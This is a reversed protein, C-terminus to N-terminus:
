ERRGNTALARGDTRSPVTQLLYDGYRALREALSVLRASVLGHVSNPPFSGDARRQGATIGTLLEIGQDVTEVAWVHFLGAAAAEVIEPKLMLHRANTRPIIVGQTGTLGRAKCVAFFGEIKTTVGGVAQIDGRQNVSGTVAIDQRIPTDALSSLLAYLESSSASDGDIEDYVQEFAIRASLALPNSKAYTGVLYGILTLVGKSHSPGSLKIERQVDVVGDVGMGTQVTIRTPRAFAHDELQLVSLGNIQGVVRSQTDIAITGQVMMRQVEDEVLRVRYERQVLATEVHGGGVEPAGAQRACSDAEVIVETIADFCSTLREQDEVLRSGHEVLRAVAERNFPLLCHEQVQQSIFAAYAQVSTASYDLMPSFEAKVKFLKRFDEDLRYLLSYTLADGILVVKVQLPIPEPKLSMTPLGGLQETLNEVRIQRDRLSRKLADWAFPNTLLDRAQLILFGGNARHLAGPKVLAFDTHSGGGAVEYDIRGVLNYYTPNPEFIVPAGPGSSTPVLVNVGYRRYAPHSNAGPRADQESARFEDLYDVLDRQVEDLHQVVEPQSSWKRRVPDLVTETTAHAIERDVARVAEHAERDLRQLVGTVESMREQMQQGRAQIELKKENPLLGFGEPSMPVGPSLAPIMAIGGPTLEVVFGLREAEPRLGDIVAERQREFSRLALGRNQALLDSEFARQIERRCGDVVRELDRALETGRGNPLQIANPRYPDAFNRVYVWESPLPSSTAVREIESRVTSMRGSGSRGAVYVNYGSISQSLGFQLAAIGREQGVIQELPPVDNTSEFGLSEPDCRRRLQEVSLLTSASVKKSRTGKAKM